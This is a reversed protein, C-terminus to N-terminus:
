PMEVDREADGKEDCTGGDDTSGLVWTRVFQTIRRGAGSVLRPKWLIREDSGLVGGSLSSALSIGERHTM